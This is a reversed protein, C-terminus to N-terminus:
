FTNKFGEYASCLHTVLRICYLQIDHKIFPEYIPCLQTFYDGIDLTVYGVIDFIIFYDGLANSM